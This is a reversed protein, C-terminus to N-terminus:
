KEVPKMTMEYKGGGQIFNMKKESPIFIVELGIAKNSFVHGGEAKLPFSPQGTGQAILEGGKESITLDMPLIDSEYTGLYKALNGDTLEESTEESSDETKLTFDFAMGQQEFHLKQEEPVFTIKVGYKTITFHDDGKATLVEPTQGTVEMILTSEGKTFILDMPLQDNVYTGLYQDLVENSLAISEFSPLDYPKGLVERMAANAIDHAGFNAGNCIIAIALDHEEFYSFTSSVADIFGPHGFGEMEDIPVGEIGFGYSADAAPKMQELGARSVLEGNFLATAFLTLDSPTSIIGGAGQSISLDEEANLVWEEKMRYSRAENQVPNIKGGYRTNALGLPKVIHADLIEPYSKKYLDELIFTLLVYNSNSYKHKEDPNFEIGKSVITDILAAKTIPSTNWSFFSRDTFTTIGSRHNLLQRVTIKDANQIRPFFQKINEDLGIKGKEVAQMLLTATFTKSVSGIRFKTERTNSINEALDAYGIAKSYIVEGGKAVALSGFFRDNEELINLFSDLKAHRGEQGFTITCIILLAIATIISKM